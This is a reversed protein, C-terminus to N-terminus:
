EPARPEATVWVTLTNDVVLATKIEVTYDNGLVTYVKRDLLLRAFRADSDIEYISRGEFVSLDEKIIKRLAAETAADLSGQETKETRRREVHTHVTKIVSNQNKYRNLKRIEQEYQELKVELDGNQTVLAEFKAVLIGNYVAAGVIMGLIFLGASSSFRRFRAFPPVRM